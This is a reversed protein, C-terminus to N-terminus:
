EQHSLRRWLLRANYMGQLVAEPGSGLWTATRSELRALNALGHSVRVMSQEVKVFVWESRQNALLKIQSVLHLFPSRDQGSSKVAAILQSCDTEVIIPLVSNHLSLDLGAM